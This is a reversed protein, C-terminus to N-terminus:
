ALRQLNGALLGIETRGLSSSVEERLLPYRNEEVAERNAFKGTGNGFISEIGCAQSKPSRM